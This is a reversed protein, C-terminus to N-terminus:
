QATLIDAGFKKGSTTRPPTSSASAKQPPPAIIGRSEIVKVIELLAMIEGSSDRLLISFSNSLTEQGHPSFSKWEDELSSFRQVLDPALWVAIAKSSRLLSLVDNVSLSTSRTAAQLNLGLIQLDGLLTSRPEVAMSSIIGLKQDASGHIEMLLSRIAQLTDGPLGSNNVEAEKLNNVLQLLKKMREEACGSLLAMRVQRAPLLWIHPAPWFLAPDEKVLGIRVEDLEMIRAVPEPLNESSVNTAGPGALTILGKTTEIIEDYRPLLAKPNSISLKELTSILADIYRDRPIVPMFNGVSTGAPRKRSFAASLIGIALLGGIGLLIAKSSSGGESVVVIGDDTSGGEPLNDEIKGPLNRDRNGRVSVKKQSKSSAQMDRLLQSNLQYIGPARGTTKFTKTPDSIWIYEGSSHVWTGEGFSDQSPKFEKQALWTGISFPGKALNGNSDLLIVIDVEPGIAYQEGMFTGRPWTEIADQYEAIYNEQPEPRSRRRM